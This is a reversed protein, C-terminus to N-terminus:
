RIKVRRKLELSRVFDKKKTRTTMSGLRQLMWTLMSKKSIRKWIVKLRLILLRLSFLPSSSHPAEHSGLCPFTGCVHIKRLSVTRTKTSSSPRQLLNKLGWLQSGYETSDNGKKGDWFPTHVKGDLMGESLQEKYVQREYMTTEVSDASILRHVSVDRKQGLRFARDIAQMDHAPNPSPDFIIVRNAGTLNLGTGGARTAVLMMRINPNNNFRDCLGQRQNAPTSGQLILHEYDKREALHAVYQLSALRSSFLLVKDGDRHFRALLRELAAWKGCYDASNERLRNTM